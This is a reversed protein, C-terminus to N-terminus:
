YGMEDSARRCNLCAIPWQLHRTLDKLNEMMKEHFNKRLLGTDDTQDM